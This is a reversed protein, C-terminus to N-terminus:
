HGSCVFLCSRVFSFCKKRKWYRRASLIKRNMLMRPSRLKTRIEARTCADYICISFSLLYKRADAVPFREIKRLCNRLDFKITTSRARGHKIASILYVKVCIPRKCLIKMCTACCFRPDRRRNIPTFIDGHKKSYRVYTLERVRAKKSKWEEFSRLKLFRATTTSAGGSNIIIASSARSTQEILRWEDHSCGRVNNRPLSSSAGGSALNKPRKPSLQKAIDFTGPLLLYYCSPFTARLPLISLYEYAKRRVGSAEILNRRVEACM